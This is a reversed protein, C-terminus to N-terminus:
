GNSQAKAEAWWSMLETLSCDRLSRGSRAAMQEVLWLRQRYRANAERLATEADLQLWHALTTLAFFLDGLEAMQAPPNPAARLEALEEEVKAWVQDITTWTFGARIAKRALTQAAALAPLAKPVGDLVSVRTQGKAALEKAKLEEWNRLVQGTDAVEVAGFVHPHRFVLKDAVQQVVDELTFQGAQRAMESHVIVQMLVDGLEECLQAMAGADLAELAEYVEELLASRLSQHTQRVDWPCGDPGLLRSIVWRLRDLGCRDDALALAPIILAFTTAPPLRIAALDPILLTQITETPFTILTLPHHPPYRVSLLASLASWDVAAEGWIFAPLHTALPYPLRPPQYRGLGHQEVWPLVQPDPPVTPAQMLRDIAWVQMAAPDLLGRDLAFNLLATLVASM